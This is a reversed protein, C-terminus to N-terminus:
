SKKLYLGLDYWLGFADIPNLFASSLVWFRRSISTRRTWPRPWWRSWSNPRCSGSRSLELMWRHSWHVWLYELLVDEARLIVGSIIIMIIQSYRPSYYPKKPIIWNKPTELACRWSWGTKKNELACPITQYPYLVRGTFPKRSSRTCTHTSPTIIIKEEPGVFNLVHKNTHIFHIAIPSIPRLCQPCLCIVHDLIHSQKLNYM